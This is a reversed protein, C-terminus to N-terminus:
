CGSDPFKCLKGCVGFPWNEFTDGKCSVKVSWIRWLNNTNPPLIQPLPVLHCRLIVHKGNPLLVLMIQQAEYVLFHPHWRWPTEECWLGAMDENLSKLGVRPTNTVLQTTENSKEKVWTRINGLFMSLWSVDGKTWKILKQAFQSNSYVFPFM